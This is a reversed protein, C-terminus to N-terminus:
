ETTAQSNVRTDNSFTSQKRGFIQEAIQRFIIRNNGCNRLSFVALLGLSPPSGNMIRILLRRHLTSFTLRVPEVAGTLAGLERWLSAQDARLQLGLERCAALDADCSEPRRICVPGISIRVFGEPGELWKEVGLLGRPLVNFQHRDSGALYAPDRGSRSYDGAAYMARSLRRCCQPGRFHRSRPHFLENHRTLTLPVDTHVDRSAHGM